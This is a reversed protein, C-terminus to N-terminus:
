GPLAFLSLSVSLVAQEFLVSENQMPISLCEDEVKRKSNRIKTFLLM